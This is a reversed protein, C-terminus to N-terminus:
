FKCDALFEGLARAAVRGNRELRWLEPAAAWPRALAAGLIRLRSFRGGPGRLENFNLTFGETARDLVARVCYFPLDRESARGAVAAAEMEVAAGGNAGLRRKEEVSVVVRDMSVLTGSHFVRATKPLAAEYTGSVAQVRSAVFIDGVELSADLAGCFGTSVVVDPREVLLVTDVAEIALKGGPGHAVLLLREGNWEACRAFRL